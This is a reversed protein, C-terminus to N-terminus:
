QMDIEQKGNFMRMQSEKSKIVWVTEMSLFHMHCSFWLRYKISCPAM